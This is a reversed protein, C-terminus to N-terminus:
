SLIKSGSGRMGRLQCTFDTKPMRLRERGVEQSKLIWPTIASQTCRARPQPLYVKRDKPVQVELTEGVELEWRLSMPRAPPRMGSAGRLENKRGRGVDEWCNLSDQWAPIYFIEKGWTKLGLYKNSAAYFERWPEAKNWIFFGSFFQLCIRDDECPLTRLESGPAYADTFTVRIWM